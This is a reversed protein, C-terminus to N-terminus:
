EFKLKEYIKKKRELIEIETKIISQHEKSHFPFRSKANECYDLELNACMLEVYEFNELM